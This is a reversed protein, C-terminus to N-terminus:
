LKGSTCATNPHQGYLRVKMEKVSQPEPTDLILLPALDDGTVAKGAYDPGKVLICPSVAEIIERLQAASDFILIEDAYPLLAAARDVQDKIPYKDGWKSRKLERAYRDSNIAVIVRNPGFTKGGFYRAWGLFEEHGEHLLDFCGNCVVTAM